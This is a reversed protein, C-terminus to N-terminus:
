VITFHCSSSPPSLLLTLMSSLFFCSPIQLLNHMQTESSGERLTQSWRVTNHPPSLLLFADTRTSDAEQGSYVKNIGLSKIHPSDKRSSAGTAIYNEQLLSLFCTNQVVSHFTYRLYTRLHPRSVFIM